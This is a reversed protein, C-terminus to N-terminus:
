DEELEMSWATTAGYEDQSQTFSMVRMVLIPRYYNFGGDVRQSGPVEPRQPSGYDDYGLEAVCYVTILKGPWVGDCAPPRQDTCSITSKYKQFPAFSLDLLSGDSARVLNKAEDIPELSQTLGRASFPPVGIGYLRLITAERMM